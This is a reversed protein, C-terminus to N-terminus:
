RILDYHFERAREDAKQKPTAGLFQSTVKTMFFFFVNVFSGLFKVLKECERTDLFFWFSSCNKKLHTYLTM